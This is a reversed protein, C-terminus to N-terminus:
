IDKAPFPDDAAELKDQIKDGSILNAYFIRAGQTAYLSAYFIRKNGLSPTWNRWRWARSATRSRPSAVSVSMNPHNLKRLVEAEFRIRENYKKDAAIRHNRKKIAWPSRSFGVKPSRELSFM